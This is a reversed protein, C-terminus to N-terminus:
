EVPLVRAPLPRERLLSSSRIMACQATSGLRVSVAILVEECLRWMSRINFCYRILLVRWFPLSQGDAGPGLPFQHFGFNQAYRLRDSSFAAAPASRCAEALASQIFSQRHKTKRPAFGTVFTKKRARARSNLTFLPLM